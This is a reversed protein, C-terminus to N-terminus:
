DETILTSYGILECEKIQKFLEPLSCSQREKPNNSFCPGTSEREFFECMKMSRPNIREDPEGPNDQPLMVLMIGMREIEKTAGVPIESLLLSIPRGDEFREEKKITFINSTKPVTNIIKNGIISVDYADLEHWVGCFEKNKLVCTISKEVYSAEGPDDTSGHSPAAAIILFVFLAFSRKMM